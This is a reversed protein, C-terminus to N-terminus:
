ETWMDIDDGGGAVESNLIYYGYMGFPAILPIVLVASIGSRARYFGGNLQLGWGAVLYTPPTVIIPAILLLLVTLLSFYM